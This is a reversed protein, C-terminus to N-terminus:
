SFSDDTQDSQHYNKTSLTKQGRKQTHTHTRTHKQLAQQDMTRVRSTPAFVLAVLHVFVRWTFLCIDCVYVRLKGFCLDNM